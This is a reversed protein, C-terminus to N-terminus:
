RRQEDILEVATKPSRWSRAIEEALTDLKQLAEDRQAQRLDGESEKLFPRLVAVPEGRLTVIYEAANELVEHVIESAHNKLERVGIRTATM